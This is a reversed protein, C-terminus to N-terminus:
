RRRHWNGVLDRAALCYSREADAYDERTSGTLRFFGDNAWQVTRHDKDTFIIKVVGCDLANLIKEFELADNTPKDSM